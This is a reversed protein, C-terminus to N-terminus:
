KHSILDRRQGTHSTCLLLLTIFTIIIVYKAIVIHSQAYLIDLLLFYSTCLSVFSFFAFCSADAGRNAQRELTSEAFVAAKGTDLKCATLKQLEFRRGSILSLLWQVYCLSRYSTGAHDDVKM